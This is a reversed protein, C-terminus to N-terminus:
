VLLVVLNYIKPTYLNDGFIAYFKSLLGFVLPLHTYFPDFMQNYYPKWFTGYGLYLNRGVASYTMGDFFMGEHLLYPFIFFGAIMLVFAWGTARFIKSSKEIETLQM